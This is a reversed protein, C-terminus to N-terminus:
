HGYLWNGIYGGAVAGIAATAASVYIGSGPVLVAADAGGMGMVLVPTAMGGTIANAVVVGAVAGVAIAVVRYSSTAEDGVPAAPTTVVTDARAVLPAMVLLMLALILARM